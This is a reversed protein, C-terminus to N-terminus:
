CFRRKYVTKLFSYGLTTFSMGYGNNLSIHTQLFKLAPSNHVWKNSQFAFIEKKSWFHMLIRTIKAVELLLTYKQIRCPSNLTRKKLKTVAFNKWKLRSVFPYQLVIGKLSHKIIKEQYLQPTPSWTVLTPTPHPLPM